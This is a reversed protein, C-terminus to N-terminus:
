LRWPVCRASASASRKGWSDVGRVPASLMLASFVFSLLYFKPTEHGIAPFRITILVRLGPMLLPFVLRPLLPLEDVEDLPLELSRSCSAVLARSSRLRPTTRPTPTRCLRRAADQHAVEVIIEVTMFPSTTQRHDKSQERRKGFKRQPDIAGDSSREWRRAIHRASRARSPVSSSPTRRTRFLPRASRRSACILARARILDEITGASSCPKRTSSSKSRWRLSM